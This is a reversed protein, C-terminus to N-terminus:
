PRETEFQFRRLEEPMVQMIIKWFESRKAKDLLLYTGLAIEGLAILEAPPDDTVSPGISDRLIRIRELTLCLSSAVAPAADLSVPPRIALLAIEVSELDVRSLLLHLFPPARGSLWRYQFAAYRRFALTSGTTEASLQVLANEVATSDETWLAALPDDKGALHAVFFASDQMAVVLARRVRETNDTLEAQPNQRPLIFEVADRGPCLSAARPAVPLLGQWAM